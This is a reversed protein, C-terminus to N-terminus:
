LSDKKSIAGVINRGRRQESGTYVRVRETTPFTDTDEEGLTRQLPRSIAEPDTYEQRGTTARAGGHQITFTIHVPSHTRGQGATGKRVVAAWGM